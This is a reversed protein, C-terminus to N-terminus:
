HMCDVIVGSQVTDLLVSQLEFTADVSIAANVAADLTAHQQLARLFAHEGSTLRKIIVAVGDVIERYVLLTDGSADWDVAMDGAFAPQNVEWIRLLPFDSQILRAAPHLKFRLAAHEGAPIAALRALDFARADAAHFAQHWAWELRAVDPLYPLEQAHPYAGLFAAWEGGYQNLDGSQSPHQRAFEDVATYFFTEGVVSVVM